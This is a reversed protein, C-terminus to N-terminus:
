EPLLGAARRRPSRIFRRSNMVNTPPAVAHGRVATAGSAGSVPKARTDSQVNSPIATSGALPQKLRLTRRAPALKKQDRDDGALHAGRLPDMTRASPPDKQSGIEASRHSLSRDKAGVFLPPRAMMTGPHFVFAHRHPGTHAAFFRWCFNRHDPIVTKSSQLRCARACAHGARHGGIATPELPPTM